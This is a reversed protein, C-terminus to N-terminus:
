QRVTESDLPNAYKVDELFLGEPPVSWAHPLPSQIDMSAKLDALSSKGLGVNLGAGVVLRVMGRLFRNSRISYSIHDHEFIWKSETLSCKFHDADSGTKCFPQFQDYMLLMEAAKHMLTQDLSAHQHFYFSHGNSFPDKELHIYYKYHREIADFRAHFFPDTEVISHISIDEPLVANIQYILKETLPVDTVDVHATYKRAHVGTDTRGCGVIDVPQRLIISFAEELTQQVSPDGPQKQWGCYHTGQYSLQIRWRM